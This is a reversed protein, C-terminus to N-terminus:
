WTDLPASILCNSKSLHRYLQQIYILHHWKLKTIIITLSSVDNVKHWVKTTKLENVEQLLGTIYVVVTIEMIYILFQLTDLPHPVQGTSSCLCDPEMM